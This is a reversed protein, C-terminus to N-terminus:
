LDQGVVLGRRRGRALALLLALGPMWLTSGLVRDFRPAWPLTTQDPTPLDQGVLVTVPTHDALPGTRIRLDTTGVGKVRCEGTNTAGVGVACSVDDAPEPLHVTLDTEAIEQQWGQPVLNWYFQSPEDVDDGPTIASTVHYSIEYVHDGSPVFAGADGIKLVDYRLDEQSRDVPVDDGDYTVEVDSIRHRVDPASPDLRDFFRFIGHRDPGPFDVTLTEVVDMGGDEHVDFDAVYSTISTPEDVSPDAEAHDGADDFFLAPLFLLGVLLVLGGLSAVIRAVARLSRPGADM